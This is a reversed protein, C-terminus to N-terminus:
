KSYENLFGIQDVILALEQELGEKDNQADALDAELNKITTKDGRRATAEAQLEAEVDTLRKRAAALESQLAAARNNADGLEYAADAVARDIDKAASSSGLERELARLKEELERRQKRREALLDEMGKQTTASMCKVWFSFFAYKLRMEKGQLFIKLRQLSQSDREAILRALRDQEAREEASDKANRKFASVIAFRIGKAKLELFAAVRKAMSNNKIRAAKLQRAERELCKFTSYKVGKLKNELFVKLRKFKEDDAMRAIRGMQMNKVLAAFTLDKMKGTLRAFILKLKQAVASGELAQMKAFLAARQKELESLRDGRRKQIVIDAWTMFPVALKRNQWRKIFCRLMAAVQKNKMAALKEAEMRALENMDLGYKEQQCMQHFVNWGRWVKYIQANKMKKLFLTLKVRNDRARM